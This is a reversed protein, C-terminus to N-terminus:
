WGFKECHLEISPGDPRICDVATERMTDMLKGPGCGSVLVREHAAADGVAERILEAVDPRQYKVVMGNYLDGALTREDDSRRLSKELDVSSQSISSTHSEPMEVGRTTAEESKEDMVIDTKSPPSTSLPTNSRTVFIQISFRSDNKLATLHHSFWELQTRHKVIWVFVVKRTIVNSTVMKRSLVEALGFIFSAGSGGAVLVATEFASPDPVTGYSGEISAKLRVGPNATAYKHLAATFGDRSAVVFEMPDTSVITFPHTEILRIRPIWLFAHKAPSVIMPRKALTVRTGGNPLPTLTASNNVSYLVLRLFRIVRDLGWMSGAVVTGIAAKAALNPQHFGLSIISVMWLIIHLYYFLEYWWRRVVIAALALLVWSVGAVIGMIDSPRLLFSSRGAHVFYYSYCIGHIVVHVVAAYGCVRHLCNLREYSWSTLFALPTNKLAFFVLFLLNGIALRSVAVLFSPMKSQGNRRRIWHALQRISHFVIFVLGTAILFLIFALTTQENKRARIAFQRHMAAEMKSTMVIDIAPPELSSSALGLSNHRKSSSYWVLPVLLPKCSTSHTEVRHIAM